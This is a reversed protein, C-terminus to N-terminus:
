LTRLTPSLRLARDDHRPRGFPTIWELDAIWNSTFTNGCYGDLISRVYDLKISTPYESLLPQEVRDGLQLAV